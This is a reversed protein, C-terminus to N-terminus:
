ILVKIFYEIQISLNVHACGLYFFRLDAVTGSGIRFYMTLIDLSINSESEFIFLPLVSLFSAYLSPDIQELQSGGGSAKARGM